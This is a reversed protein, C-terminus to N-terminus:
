NTSLRHREGRTHPSDRRSGTRAVRFGLDFTRDSPEVGSRNASRLDQPLYGSWCGGRRVRRTRDGCDSLWASGDSPAGVYTDHWKDECWEWVNGSMDYLGFANPPYSGVIVSKSSICAQSAGITGGTWYATATGARCAYEWEAETPLRYADTHGSLGCVDNLFAVYAQADHWSVYVVPQRDRSWGRNPKELKAGAALAADWEAFTVPYRGLEFAREIRVEHQPRENDCSDKEGMSAGMWFRGPPVPMTEPLTGHPIQGIASRRHTEKASPRMGATSGRRAGNGLANILRDMDKHFDPDRRVHAVNLERLKQLSAPMQEARPMPAGNVLVPVVQLTPTHLAMELEMRVWDRPDDLRRVGDDNCVDTWNPGIMALFVSCRPLVTLIYAGFEVGPDLDDVDKFVAEEGFAACLRDYVRGSADGTDDRRYGVFISHLGM